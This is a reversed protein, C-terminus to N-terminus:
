LSRKKTYWVFINIQIGGWGGFLPFLPLNSAWTMGSSEPYYYTEILYELLYSMMEDKIMEINELIFMVLYSLICNVCKTM